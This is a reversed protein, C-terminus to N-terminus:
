ALRLSKLACSRTRITLSIRSAKSAVADEDADEEVLLAVVASEEGGSQEEVPLAGAASREADVFPAVLPAVVM